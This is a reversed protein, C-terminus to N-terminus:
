QSSRTVVVKHPPAEDAEFRKAQAEASPVSDVSVHEIAARPFQAESNLRVRSWPEPIRAPHEPPLHGIPATLAEFDLHSDLRLTFFESLVKFTGQDEMATQLQSVPMHRGAVGLPIYPAAFELVADLDETPDPKNSPRGWVELHHYYTWAEIKEIPLGNVMALLGAPDQGVSCGDITLTRIPPIGVGTLFATVCQWPTYQKELQIASSSSHSLLVLREVKSFAALVNKLDALSSVFYLDQQAGGYVQEFYLQATGHKKTVGLAAMILHAEKKDGGVAARPLAQAAPGLASERTADQPTAPVDLPTSPTPPLPSM